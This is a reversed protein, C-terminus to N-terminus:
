IRPALSEHLRRAATEPDHQRLIASIVAVGTAGAEIVTRANSADVGGIGVVPLRSARVRSAFADIGLADGADVKSVTGFVPGIGLYDAIQGADDSTDDPSYGIIFGRPTIRRADVPAVDNVGLHVGDAGAALAIDVRDNVILPVGHRDTLQRLATGLAVTERDTRSKVRLQVATVGGTLAADVCCVLDGDCQDPDAILYLRLATSVSRM